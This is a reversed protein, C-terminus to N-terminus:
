NACVAAPRLEFAAGLELTQIEPRAPRSSLVSHTASATCILKESTSLGLVQSNAACMRCFRARRALARAFPLERSKQVTRLAFSSHVRAVNPLRTLHQSHLREFDATDALVVRLLFDYEGSM